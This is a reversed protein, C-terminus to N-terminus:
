DLTEAAADLILNPANTEDISNKGELKPNPSASNTANVKCLAVMKNLKHAHVRINKCSM